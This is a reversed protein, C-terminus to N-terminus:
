GHRFVGESFHGHLNFDMGDAFGYGHPIKRKGELKFGGHYYSPRYESDDHYGHALIDWEIQEVIARNKSQRGIPEDWEKGTTHDIYPNLPCMEQYKKTVLFPPEYMAERKLM